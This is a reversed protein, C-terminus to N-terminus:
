SFYIQISNLIPTFQDFYILYTYPNRVLLAIPKPYLLNQVDDEDHM